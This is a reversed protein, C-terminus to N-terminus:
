KPVVAVYSPVLTVTVSADEAGPTPTDASLDFRHLVAGNTTDFSGVFLYRGDNLVGGSLPAIPTSKLTPYILETNTAVNLGHIAIDPTPCSTEGTVFGPSYTDVVGTVFAQELTPSFTVQQPTCALTSSTVVPAVVKVTSLCVDGEAPTLPAVSAVPPVTVQATTSVTYNLWETGALGIVYPVGEIATADLNIPGTTSGALSLAPPTQTPHSFCTSYNVLQDGSAFYSQGDPTWALAKVNTSLGADAPTTASIPIFTDATYVYV